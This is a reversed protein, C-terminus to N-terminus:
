QPAHLRAHLVVSTAATSHALPAQVEVQVSPCALQVCGAVPASLPQSVSTLALAVLHPPQLLSQVACPSVVQTLECHPQPVLSPVHPLPEPELHTPPRHWHSKSGHWGPSRQRCDPPFRRQEHPPPTVGHVVSSNQQSVSPQMLTLVDAALQPAHPRAQVAPKM